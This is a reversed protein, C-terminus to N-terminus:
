LQQCHAPNTAIVATIVGILQKLELEMVQKSKITSKNYLMWLLNFLHFCDSLRIM